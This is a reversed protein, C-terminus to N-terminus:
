LAANYLINHLPVSILNVFLFVGFIGLSFGSIMKFGQLNNILRLAKYLVIFFYITLGSSLVYLTLFTMLDSPSFILQFIVNLQDEQNDSERLFPIMYQQLPLQLMMIPPFFATLFCFEAITERLEATGGVVKMSLHFIVSYGIWLSLLLVLSSVLYSPKEHQLGVLAAVPIELIVGILGIYFMFRLGYILTSEDRLDLHEFVRHGKTIVAYWSKIFSRWDKGLFEIIEKLDM